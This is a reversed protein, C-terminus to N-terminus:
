FKLLITINNIKINFIILVSLINTEIKILALLMLTTLLFVLKSNFKDLDLFIFIM